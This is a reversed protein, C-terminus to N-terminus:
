FLLRTRRPNVTSLVQLNQIAQLFNENLTTVKHTEMNTVGSKYIMQIFSKTKDKGPAIGICLPVQLKWAHNTVVGVSNREILEM